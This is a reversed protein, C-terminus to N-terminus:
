SYYLTVYIFYLIIFIHTYRAVINVNKKYIDNYRIFNYKISQIVRQKCDKCFLSKKIYDEIDSCIIKGKKNKCKNCLRSLISQHIPTPIWDNNEIHYYINCKSCFIKNYLFILNKNCCFKCEVPNKM